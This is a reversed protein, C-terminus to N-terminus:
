LPPRASDAGAGWSWLTLHVDSLIYPVNSNNSLLEKLTLNWRTVSLFRGSKEVRFLSFERYVQRLHNTHSFFHLNLTIWLIRRPVSNVATNM